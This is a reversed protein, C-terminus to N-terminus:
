DEIIYMIEVLHFVMAFLEDPTKAAIFSWNKFRSGDANEQVCMWGDYGGADLHALLKKAAAKLEDEKKEM